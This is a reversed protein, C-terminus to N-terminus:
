VSTVAEHNMIFKDSKKEKKNLWHVPQGARIQRLPIFVCPLLLIIKFLIVIFPLLSSIFTFSRILVFPKTITIWWPVGYILLHTVAVLLAFFGLYSQIVTFEHWNLRELISPITSVALIAMSLYAVIGTLLMIEGHDYFAHKAPVPITINNELFYKKYKTVVFFNHPNKSTLALISIIMHFTAFFFAWLGIQKRSKLWRDLWNPFRKIKNGYYLQFFAALEGPLYCSALLFIATTCVAPNLRRLPYTSWDITDRMYMRAVTWLTFILFTAWAFITPAIWDPFIRAASYEIERAAYLMGRDIPTTGIDRALQMVKTKAENNDSCIFVNKSAGFSESLLAWASLVNFGKVVHTDTYNQLLEANSQEKDISDNSVDVLVKGRLQEKFTSLTSYHTPRIAVIIVDSYKLCSEIDVVDINSFLKDINTLVRNSPDRSGLIVSYSSKFARLALARAFDGTGIISIKKSDM